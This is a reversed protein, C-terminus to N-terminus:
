MGAFVTGAQELRQVYTKNRKEANEALRYRHGPFVELQDLIGARVLRLCHQRSTSGSIGAKLAVEKATLWGSHTKLVNYLKWQHESIENTESTM